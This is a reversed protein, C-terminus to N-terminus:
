TLVSLTYAGVLAHMAAFSARAGLSTLYVPKHMEALWFMALALVFFGPSMGGFCALLVALVYIGETPVDPPETKFRHVDSARM